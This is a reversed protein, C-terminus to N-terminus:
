GSLHWSKGTVERLSRFIESQPVMLGYSGGDELYFTSVLQGVWSWGDKELVPCFAGCGSDGPLVVSERSDIEQSDIPYVPVMRTHHVESEPINQGQIEEETIAGATGKKFVVTEPHGVRGATCGTSAGDKYCVTGAEADACTVIGNSGTFTREPASSTTIYKHRMERDDMWSGNVGKWENGLCVLAWDSRWGNGNIGIHGHQVEGCKNKWRELLFDLEEHRAPLSQVELMRTLIDLGGPTIVRKESTSTFPAVHYATLAYVQNEAEDEPSLFVAVSGKTESGLLSISQGHIFPGIKSIVRQAKSHNSRLKSYRKSAELWNLRSPELLETVAEMDAATYRLKGKLIITLEPQAAASEALSQTTDADVYLCICQVSLNEWGFRTSTAVVARAGAEQRLYDVVYQLDMDLPKVPQQDAKTIIRPIAAPSPALLRGELLRVRM